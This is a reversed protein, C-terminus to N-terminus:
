LRLALPEADNPMRYGQGCLSDKLRDMQRSHTSPRLVSRIRLPTGWRIRLLFHYLRAIACPYGGASAMLHLLLNPLEVGTLKTPM